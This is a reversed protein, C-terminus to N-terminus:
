IKTGSFRKSVIAHLTFNMLYHYSILNLLQCKWEVDSPSDSNAWKTSGLSRHFPSTSLDSHLSLKSYPIIILHTNLHCAM